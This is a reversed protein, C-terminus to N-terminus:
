SAPLFAGCHHSGCRHHERAWLGCHECPAHGEADAPTALLVPRPEVAVGYPFTLRISGDPELAAAAGYERIVRGLEASFWAGSRLVRSDERPHPHDVLYAVATADEPGAPRGDGPRYPHLPLYRAALAGTSIYVAGTETVAARTFPQQRMQERVIGLVRGRPIMQPEDAAPQEWRLGNRVEILFDGFPLEAPVPWLANPSLQRGPMADYVTSGAPIPDAVALPQFAPEPQGIRGVVGPLARDPEGPTTRTPDHDPKSALSDLAARVRDLTKGAGDVEARSAEGGGAINLFNTAYEAIMRMVNPSGTVVVSRARGRTVEESNEYALRLAKCMPDVDDDGLIAGTGSLWEAFAGPLSVARTASALATRAIEALERGAAELPTWLVVPSEDEDENPEFRRLLWEGTPEGGAAVDISVMGSDREEEPNGEIHMRIGSPHALFAAGHQEGAAWAPGLTASAARALDILGFPAEVQYLPANPKTLSVTM